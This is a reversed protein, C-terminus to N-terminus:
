KFQTDVRRFLVIGMRNFILEYNRNNDLGKLYKNILQTDVLVPPPLETDVLVYDATETARPIDWLLKPSRHIHPIIQYQAAVSANEPINDIIQSLLMLNESSPEVSVGGVPYGTRQANPIL